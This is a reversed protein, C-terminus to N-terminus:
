LYFNNICIPSTNDESIYNLIIDDHQSFIYRTIPTLMTSIYRESAADLGGKSRSGFQGKPELININNSGVFQQCMSKTTLHLSNEGHHYNAHESIYGSFQAAKAEVNDYGYEYYIDSLKIADELANSSYFDYDPIELRRNYFQDKKPLINNIATGGYCILKNNVLFNELLEIM